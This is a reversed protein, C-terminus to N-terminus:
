NESKGLYQEFLQYERVQKVYFEKDHKEKSDEFYGSYVKLKEGFLVLEAWEGKSNSKVSLNALSQNFEGYIKTQTYRRNLLSILDIVLYDNSALGGPISEPILVSIAKDIQGKGDYLRAYMTAKYIDYAAWENGCFHQYPYEKDFMVIYKEAEQWNKEELSIEAMYRASNHKYLAYPEMLSNSETENYGSELIKAFAARAEKYRKLEMSILGTNFHARPKMESDPFVSIFEYFALLSELKRDEEYLRMAKHFASDELAIKKQAELGPVALVILLGLLVVRTKM